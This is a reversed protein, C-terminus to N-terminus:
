RLPPHQRAASPAIRAVFEVISRAAGHDPDLDPNYISLSWGACGGTHLAAM